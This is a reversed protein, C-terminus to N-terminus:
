PRPEPVYVAINHATDQPGLSVGELTRTTEDWRVSELELAGQLVHRDTSIVHPAGRKEHLALLAVSAPPTPASAAARAVVPALVGALSLEGVFERRSSRHTM